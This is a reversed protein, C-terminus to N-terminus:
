DNRLSRLFRAQQIGKALWGIVGGMVFSLFIVVFLPMTIQRFLWVPASQRNMMAFITLAIVFLLVLISRVNVQKREQAPVQAAM